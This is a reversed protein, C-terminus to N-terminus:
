IRRYLYYVKGLDKYNFAEERQDVLAYRSADLPYEDLRKERTIVYEAEGREVIGSQEAFCDEANALLRCFWRNGPLVDASLYFGGDLFGFNLITADETEAIIRAFQTQALKEGPYGLRPLNDSVLAGLACLCVAAAAAARRARRAGLKELGRALPVCGLPAFCAFIYYYYGNLRGGSYIAAAACGLALALFLKRCLMGGERRELLLYLVGGLVPIGMLPNVASGGFLGTCINVIRSGKRAYGVINQLFYVQWLEDLAGNFAFYGIWVLAPLAMGLLFILCMRVARLPRRGRVACDVAVAAMWAFHLGLLSFKIWFLCGALFGNRLLCGNTMRRGPDSFYRLGEYLSWALIPASLEEACDGWVFARGSVLLVATVLLLPWWSERAFLSVTRWSIYLFLAMALTELLYVGFFGHPSIWVAPVHLFYLLPGKQEMLDRYPVMGSAIGRAVTHFCNADVWPNTPYLPSAGAFLLLILASGLLLAAFVKPRSQAM